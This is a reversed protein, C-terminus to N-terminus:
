LISCLRIRVTIGTLNQLDINGNLLVFMIELICWRRWLSRILSGCYVVEEMAVPDAVWM